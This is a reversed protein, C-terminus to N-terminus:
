VPPTNFPPFRCAALPVTGSIDKYRKRKLLCSDATQGAHPRHLSGSPVEYENIKQLQGPWNAVRTSHSIPYNLHVTGKKSVRVIIGTKRAWMQGILSQRASTRMAFARGPQALVTSSTAHYPVPTEQQQPRCQGPENRRGHGVRRARARRACAPCNWATAACLPRSM